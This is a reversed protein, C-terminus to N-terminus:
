IDPKQPLKVNMTKVLIEVRTNNFSFIHCNLKLLMLNHCKLTWIEFVAAIRPKIVRLEEVRSARINWSSTGIHKGECWSLHSETALQQRTNKEQSMKHKKLWPVSIRYPARKNEWACLCWKYHTRAHAHTIFYLKFYEALCLVDQTKTM